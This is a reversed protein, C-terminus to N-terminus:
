ISIFDIINKARKQWTYKEEVVMYANNAINKSLASDESLRTVAEALERPNSPSVFLATENNTLVEKLSFLNTVVMPVRSAMYEFIKLPSMFYEYHNNRPFPAIVVDCASIHTPITEHFVRGTFIVRQSLKKSEALDRYFDVHSPEGGVVYLRYKEPLFELSEIATSVGKEMGMTKLTGIYGFLILDKPLGLKERAESKSVKVSFDELRVGDHCVIVKEESVGSNVIKTKIFSTLVVLGKAKKLLRKKLNSLNDPFSHMEVFVRDFFISAYIERTYIVDYKKFLFYVRSSLLFSSLRIWYFVPSPNTYFLDIFPLRTIKFINQTHNYKFPDTKKVDVGNASVKRDPVVLEVELGNQSFAECMKMIQVTHAWDDFLGIPALYVIKM